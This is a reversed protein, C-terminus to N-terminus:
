GEIAKKIRSLGEIINKRSVAYSLRIYEDKEGINKKGFSSRPLVAINAEELLYKQLEEAGKFGMNKCVETVNPFVYFSGKPLLCNFGKIANLGEVMIDRRERFEKIMNDPEDQSGTYAEIGAYQNFTATCTSCNNELRTIREALELPMVGYGLRWGTMSYVKSFGDVLITREKMGDISFISEFKWGYVIRSYIEDSMVWINNKIALKAIKELDSRTLVGGTPNAPSNIIIIKTKQNILSELHDIDYSFNKSELIPAPVAKGGAFNIVSEYIPYGPNPYIVEDGEEILALASYFIIPKTGTTIVVEGPSVDKGRSSAIYNAIVRKFEPLGSPPGYHTHNNKIADIAAEKVNEPTNFDPEGVAFNIIDKGAERMKVVKTLVVFANETGLHDLRKAFKM